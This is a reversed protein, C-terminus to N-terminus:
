VLPAIPIENVREDAHPTSEPWAGPPSVPLLPGPKRVAEWSGPSSPCLSGLPSPSRVWGPLTPFTSAPVCGVGGRRPPGRPWTVLLLSFRPLCLPSPAAPRHSLWRLPGRPAASGPFGLLQPLLSQKLSRCAPALGHRLELESGQLHPTAAVGPPRLLGALLM